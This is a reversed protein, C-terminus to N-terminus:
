MEILRNVPILRSTNRRKIKMVSISKERGFLARLCLCIFSISYNHDRCPFIPVSGPGILRIRNIGRAFIAVPLFAFTHGSERRTDTSAKQIAWALPGKKTPWDPGTSPGTSLGTLGVRPAM